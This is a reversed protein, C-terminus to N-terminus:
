RLGGLEHLFAAPTLLRIGLREVGAFERQNSTVIAQCGAAVALELVMDDKVDRLFPRWLFFVEQHKSVACLYDLIAQIDTPQLWSEKAQQLLVGEYELVLPVSVALEFRKTGILSLLKFAAGRRSRLGAVLINTDLM